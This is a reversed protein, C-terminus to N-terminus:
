PVCSARNKVLLASWYTEFRRLRKQEGSELQTSSWSQLQWKFYLLQPYCSSVGGYLSSAAAVVFLLPRAIGRAKPRQHDVEVLKM